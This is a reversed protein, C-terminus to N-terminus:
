KTGLPKKVPPRVGGSFAPMGVKYKAEVAAALDMKQQFRLLMVYNRAANSALDRMGAQEFLSIARVYRAEADAFQGGRFALAASNNLAAALNQKYAPQKPDLKVAQEFKQAADDMKGAGLLKVGEANISMADPVIVVEDSYLRQLTKKDRASLSVAVDAIPSTDFMVDHPDTSHGQMGCAHGIEHLCKMRMLTPTLPRDPAPDLTLMTILASAIGDPGPYIQAEGGEAARQAVNQLDNTNNSWKVILNAAEPTPVYTFWLKGPAVEAWDAFAQRMISDYEPKYGPVGAGNPLYVKVPMKAVNWKQPHGRSIEVYYDSGDGAGGGLKKVEESLNLEKELGSIMGRVKPSYPNSPFRKLFEKYSSLAKDKQGRAQYLNGLNLWIEAQNPSLQLSKELQVIAEDVRGVRALVVGLNCQADQLSPDLAVAKELKVLAEPMKEQKMLAVAQQVLIAAQYTDESVPKGDRMYQLKQAIASHACAVALLAALLPVSMSFILLSLPRRIM